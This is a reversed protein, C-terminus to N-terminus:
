RLVEDYVRPEAVSDRVGPCAALHFVIDTKSVLFYRNSRDAWLPSYNYYSTEEFRTAINVTFRLPIVFVAAVAIPLLDPEILVLAGVIVFFGASYAITLRDLYAVLRVIDSRM